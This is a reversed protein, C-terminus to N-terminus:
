NIFILQKDKIAPVIKNHIPISITYRNTEERLIIEENKKKGSYILIDGTMCEKYFSIKGAVRFKDDKQINDLIYKGNSESSPVTIDESDTAYKPNFYGNYISLRIKKRIADGCLKNFETLDKKYFLVTGNDIDKAIWYIDVM